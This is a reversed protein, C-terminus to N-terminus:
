KKYVEVVLIGFNYDRSTANFLSIPIFTAIKNKYGTLNNEYLDWTSSSPFVENVYIKSFEFIDYYYINNTALLDTSAKLKYIDICNDVRVNEESCQLEPLFSAKQAIGIAKLQINEEKEIKSSSQMINTYFVFGFIVLIFFIFLIAISEGMQIQGKKM